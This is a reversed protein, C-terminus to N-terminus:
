REFSIIEQETIIKDVPIDYDNVPLKEVIFDSMVIGVKEVKSKINSLFKDYYGGGYGIRYGQKSFILGPVVVLDLNQNNDKKRLSKKPELIKFVGEKLDSNFDTIKSIKMEDIDKDIYPVFINKDKESLWRKILQHTKIENRFSIFIMINKFNNEKIYEDLKTTIKKSIKDLYSSSLKQRQEFYKERLDEKRNM